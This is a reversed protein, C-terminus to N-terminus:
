YTVKQQDIKWKGDEKVIVFDHVETTTKYNKKITDINKRLNETTKESDYNNGDMINYKEGIEYFDDSYYTTATYTIKNNTISKIDLTTVLFTPDSGVPADLLYWSGNSKELGYPSPQKSATLENLRNQTFYDEVDSSNTFKHGAYIGNFDKREANELLQAKSKGLYSKYKGGSYEGIVPYEGYEYLEEGIEMAEEESPKETLEKRKEEIYEDIDKGLEAEYDDVTKSKEEASDLKEKIVDDESNTEISTNVDEQINEKIPINNQEYEETTNDVEETSLDESIVTSKTENNKTTYVYKYAQKEYDYVLILNDIESNEVVAESTKNEKNATFISFIGKSTKIILEPIEDFNLDVLGIDVNEEQEKIKESYLDQWSFEPESKKDKEDKDNNKNLMLWGAVVAAAIIVIAIVISLIIVIKKNKM